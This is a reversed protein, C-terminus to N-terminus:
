SRQWTLAGNNLRPRNGRLQVLFGFRLPSADPEDRHEEVFVMHAGGVGISHTLGHRPEEVFLQSRVIQDHHHLREIRQCRDSEGAVMRAHGISGRRELPAFAVIM